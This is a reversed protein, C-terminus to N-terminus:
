PEPALKLRCDPRTLVEPNALAAADMPEVSGVLLADADAANARVDAASWLSVRRIEAGVERELRREAETLPGLRESYAVIPRPTAASM